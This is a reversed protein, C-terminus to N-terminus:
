RQRKLQALVGFPSTGGGHGCDCRVQNRNEGCVPCLGVCEESCVRKVPLSLILQQQWISDMDVVPEDLLVVDMEDDGCSHEPAFRDGGDSVWELDLAFTTDIPQVYQELCRDCALSVSLRMAGEVVVREGDRTLVASCAVPGASSLVDEPFWSSVTTKVELGTGPIDDFAIRM